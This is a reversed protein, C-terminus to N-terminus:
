MDELCYKNFNTNNQKDFTYYNEALIDLAPEIYRFKQMALERIDAVIISYADGGTNNGIGDLEEYFINVLMFWQSRILFNIFLSIEEIFRNKLYCKTENLDKTNRYQFARHMRGFEILINTSLMYEERMNNIDNIIDIEVYNILDVFNFELSADLYHSSNASNNIPYSLLDNFSSDQIATGQIFSVPIIKGEM